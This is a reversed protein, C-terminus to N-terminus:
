SPPQTRALDAATPARVERSEDPLLDAIAGMVTTTDAVADTLGLAVPPGVTV